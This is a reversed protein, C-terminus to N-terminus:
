VAMNAKIADWSHYDFNFNDYVLRRISEYTNADSNITMITPELPAQNYLQEGGIVFKQNIQRDCINSVNLADSLSNVFLPSNLGNFTTSTNVDSRTLVINLRDKLCKNGMSDFTNKGMIVSNISQPVEVTQTLKKFHTMDEKIKSWPLTNKYGIGRNNKLHAAVINFNQM